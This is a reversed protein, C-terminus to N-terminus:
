PVPFPHDQLLRFPAPSEAEAKTAAEFQLGLM